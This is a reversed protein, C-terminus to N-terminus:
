TKPHFCPEATNQCHFAPHQQREPHPCTQVMGAGQEQIPVPIRTHALDNRAQEQSGLMTRREKGKWLKQGIPNHQRRASLQLTLTVSLTVLLWGVMSVGSLTPAVLGAQNRSSEALINSGPEGELIVTCVGHKVSHCDGTVPSYQVSEVEM